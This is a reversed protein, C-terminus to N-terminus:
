RPYFAHISAGATESGDSQVPYDLTSVRWTPNIFHQQSFPTQNNSCLQTFVIIPKGERPSTDKTEKEFVTKKRFLKRSRSGVTKPSNLSLM